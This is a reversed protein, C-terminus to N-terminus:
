RGVTSSSPKPGPYSPLWEPQYRYNRYDYANWAAYPTPRYYPPAPEYYSAPPAACSYGYGTWWCQTQANASFAFAALAIGGAASLLTTRV